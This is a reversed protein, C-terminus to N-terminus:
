GHDLSISRANLSCLRTVGMPTLVAWASEDSGSIVDVLGMDQLMTFIKTENSDFGACNRRNAWASSISGLINREEISNM